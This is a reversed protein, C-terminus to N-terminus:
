RQEWLVHGINSLFVPANDRTDTHNNSNTWWEFGESFRTILCIVDVDPFITTSQREFHFVRKMLKGEVSYEPM